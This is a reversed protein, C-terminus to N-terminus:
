NKKSEAPPAEGHQMRRFLWAKAYSWNRYATRASIGLTQASEELTLGGFFHLKVLAAVQLDSEALAALAEDVALVEDDRPHSALLEEHLEVRAAGGGHKLRRNRRAREVLIRRMAEAAAAYFHGRGNWQPPTASGILRLYAEHVLATADLTQGPQEHALQRAALRRLEDYLLLLLKESAEPEGCVAADVIRTVTSM